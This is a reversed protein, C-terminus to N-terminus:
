PCGPALLSTVTLARSQSTTSLGATASYSLTRALPLLVGQDTLIKANDTHGYFFSGQISGSTRSSVQWLGDLVADGDLRNYQSVDPYAYGSGGLTVTLHSQSGEFRRSVMARASASLDSPVKSSDFAVNSQWWAGIGLSYDWPPM